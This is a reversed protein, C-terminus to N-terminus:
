AVRERADAEVKAGAFERCFPHRGVSRHAELHRVYGARWAVKMLRGAPGSRSSTRAM